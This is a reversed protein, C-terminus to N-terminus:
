FSAEHFLSCEMISHLRTKLRFESKMLATFLRNTVLAGLELKNYIIIFDYLNIKFSAVFQGFRFFLSAVFFPKLAAHISPM